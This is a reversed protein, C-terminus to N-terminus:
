MIEWVVRRDLFSGYLQSVADKKMVFFYFDDGDTTKKIANSTVTLGTTKSNNYV